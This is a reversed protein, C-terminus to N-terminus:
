RLEYKRADFASAPSKARAPARDAVWFTVTRDRPYVRTILEVGLTCTGFAGVGIQGYQLCVISGWRSRRQSFVPPWNDIRPTV